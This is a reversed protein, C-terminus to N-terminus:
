NKTITPLIDELQAALFFKVHIVTTSNEKAESVEAQQACMLLETCVLVLSSKYHCVLKKSDFSFVKALTKWALKSVM